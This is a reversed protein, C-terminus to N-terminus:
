AGPFMVVGNSLTGRVIRARMAALANEDLGRLDACAFVGCRYASAVKSFTSSFEGGVTDGLYVNGSADTVVAYQLIHTPRETGDTNDRDYAAYVGPTGSSGGTTTTVASAPTTGGTFSDTTTMAAVNAENVFTIDYPTGPGPGGTVNVGGPGVTTLLELQNRVTAATANFAIATTTQGAVTITFSGGTPTGTITIRQIEQLGVREGLITGKPYAISAPLNVNDVRAEDPNMFPILMDASYTVVPTTPM